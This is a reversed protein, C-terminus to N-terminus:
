FENKLGLLNLYQSAVNASGFPSALNRRMTVNEEQWNVPSLCEVMGEIVSEVDEAVVFV